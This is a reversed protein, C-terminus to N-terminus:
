FDLALVGRSPVPRLLRSAHRFNSLAVEVCALAVGIVELLRV